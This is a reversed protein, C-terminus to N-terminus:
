HPASDIRAARTFALLRKKKVASCAYKMFQNLRLTGAKVLKSITQRSLGLMEAAQTMTVHVPRPNAEAYMQVAKAAIDIESM